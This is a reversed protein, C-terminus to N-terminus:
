VGAKVGLRGGRVRQYRVQAEWPSYKPCGSQNLAAKTFLSPGPAQNKLPAKSTQLHRNRNRNRANSFAYCKLSYCIPCRLGVSALGTLVRTDAFVGMCSTSSQSTCYRYLFNNSEM